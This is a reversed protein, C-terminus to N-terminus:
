SLIYKAYRTLFYPSFLTIQIPFADVAFIVIDHDIGGLDHFRGPRIIGDQTDIELEGVIGLLSGGEPAFGIDRCELVALGDGGVARRGFTNGLILVVRDIDRGAIGDHNGHAHLEEIFRGNDDIDLFIRMIDGCKANGVTGVGSANEIEGVNRPNTFHDMVKESYM